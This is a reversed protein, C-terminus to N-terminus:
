NERKKIKRLKFFIKGCIKVDYNSNHLKNKNLSKNYLIEYLELLKPYKKLKLMKYSILMTCSKKLDKFINENIDNIKCENLIIKEDFILNHGIICKVEKKKIDNMLKIIIKKPNKGEKKMKEISIHHIKESEKTMKFNKVPKVIYTREKLIDGNKNYINWSISCMRSDENIGNTEVDIVLYTM